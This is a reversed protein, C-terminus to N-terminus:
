AGNGIRNVVPIYWLVVFFLDYGTIESIKNVTLKVVRLSVQHHLIYNSRMLRSRVFKFGSEESIMERYIAALYQCKCIAHPEVAVSSWALAEM